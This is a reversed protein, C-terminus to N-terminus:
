IIGYSDNQISSTKILCLSLYIKHLRLQYKILIANSIKNSRSVNGWETIM